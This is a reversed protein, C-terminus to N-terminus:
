FKANGKNKVRSGFQGTVLYEIEIETLRHDIELKRMPKISALAREAQLQRLELALDNQNRMVDQMEAKANALEEKLAAVKSRKRM